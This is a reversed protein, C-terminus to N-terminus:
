TSVPQLSLSLSLFQLQLHHLLLSHMPPLVVPIPSSSPPPWPSHATYLSGTSQSWHYWKGLYSHLANRVKFVRCGLLSKLVVYQLPTMQNCELSSNLFSKEEMGVRGITEKKKKKWNRSRERFSIPISSPERIETELTIWKSPPPLCLSPELKM